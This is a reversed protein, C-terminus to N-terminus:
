RITLAEMSWIPVVSVICLCWVSNIVDGYKITIDRFLLFGCYSWVQYTAKLQLKRPRSPCRVLSAMCATQIIRYSTKVEQKSNCSTENVSLLNWMGVQSSTIACKLVCHNMALICLDSSCPCVRLARLACMAVTRNGDVTIISKSGCSQCIEPVWFIIKVVRFIFYIGDEFILRTFERMWWRLEPFFPGNCHRWAGTFFVNQWRTM